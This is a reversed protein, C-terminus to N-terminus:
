GIVPVPPPAPHLLVEKNKQYAALLNEALQAHNTFFHVNKHIDFYIKTPTGPHIVSEKSAVYITPRGLAEAYGAEFYCAPREDTLDAVIFQAKDIETKIRAVLDQIPHEKDIRISICGLPALTLKIAEFRDDYEKYIRQQDQTGFKEGQIPMIVFVRHAGVGLSHKARKEFKAFQNKKKATFLELPIATQKVWPKETGYIRLELVQYSQTKSGWKARVTGTSVFPIVVHALMEDDSKNVISKRRDGPLVAIAHWYM